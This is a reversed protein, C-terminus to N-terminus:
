NDNNIEGRINDNNSILNSSNLIKKRKEYTNDILYEQVEVNILFAISMFLAILGIESQLYTIAIGMFLSNNGNYIGIIQEEKVKTEILLSTPNADGKLTFYIDGDDFNIDVVRHVYVIDNVRFALIDYVEIDNIDEIKEITILSYQPIQDILNNELIYDNDEHISAMSETKVTFYTSDGIFLTENNVRYSISIGVVFVVFLVFLSYILSFIIKGVSLKNDNKTYKLKLKVHFFKYLEEKFIIRFSKKERNIEKDAKQKLKKNEENIEILLKNDESGINIHKRKYKGYLYYLISFVLTLCIIVIISIVFAISSLLENNEM